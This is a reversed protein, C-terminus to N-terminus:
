RSKCASSSRWIWVIDWREKGAEPDEDESPSSSGEVEENALRSNGKEGKFMPDKEEEDM